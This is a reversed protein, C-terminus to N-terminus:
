VGMVVDETVKEEGMEAALNMARSTFNNVTLPYAKSVTRRGVKDSLRREMAAYADANFIDEPKKNMRSFKHMLYRPLDKGLGGIEACTVRRTVERMEPHRTEDLLFKLEPQGILVIGILRSFGDELEYIQKLAKMAKVNLLHAEEVILTQKMGSTARNRLLKLAQRTKPELSRKPKEDSVDMIIADILSGPTIRTKDIIIPYIVKIGDNILEQVVAKRMISKGSGVEGYVATFGAHRATDLMMEKLFIHDESLFIDKVDTIDNVFPSRFLKFYRLAKPTIMETEKHTESKLPDGPQIAPYQWYKTTAGSMKKEFGRPMNMSFGTDAANWIDSIKHGSKRLWDTLIKSKKVAAEIDARFKKAKAPMKGQLAKNIRPRSWGTMGTFESQSIGCDLLLQKLLLAKM